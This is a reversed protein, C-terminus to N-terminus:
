NKNQHLMVGPYITVSDLQFAGSPHKIYDIYTYWTRGQTIQHSSLHIVNDYNEMAENLM